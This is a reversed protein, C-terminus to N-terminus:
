CSRPVVEFYSLRLNNGLIIRRILVAEELAQLDASATNPACGLQVVVQSRTIRGQEAALRLIARRRDLVKRGGMPVVGDSPLHALPDDAAVAPTVVRVPAPEGVPRGLRASTGRRHLSSCAATFAELHGHMVMLSEVENRLERVNGPWPHREWLALLDPAFAPLRSLGTQRQFHRALPAIDEPRRRLPPVEISLRQLRYFLDPRFRGQDTLLGLDENSASVIRARLQSAQSAGLPRYDGSELVRLLLAQLRQPMSGIEDLLLVGGAAQGIAGERGREAGTFAGRVYGFLEAEALSEAIAGCNLAVFPTNAGPGLRHLLRAVIEKGSGTEGTILVHEQREACLQIQGRVERMAVSDGILSLEADRRRLRATGAPRDDPSPQHSAIMGLEAAGLEYAEALEARVYAPGREQLARWHRAAGAVDDTLWCCRMWAAHCDGFDGDPDISGLLFRAEQPRRQQLSMRITLQDAMWQAPSGEVAQRLLRVADAFLESRRRRSALIARYYWRRDPLVTGAALLQEVREGRGQHAALLLHLEEDPQWAPDALLAECTSFDDVLRALEWRLQRLGHGVATPLRAEDRRLRALAAEAEPLRHRQVDALAHLLQWERAADSTPIAAVVGDGDALAADIERSRRRERALQLEHRPAILRFSPPLNPAALERVQALISTAGRDNRSRSSHGLALRLLFLRTPIDLGPQDLARDLAARAALADYPQTDHVLHATAITHEVSDGPSGDRIQLALSLEPHPFGSRYQPWASHM